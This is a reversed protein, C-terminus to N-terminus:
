LARGAVHDFQELRGGMSPDVVQNRFRVGTQDALSERTRFPTPNRPLIIPLFGHRAFRIAIWHMLHLLRVRLGSM